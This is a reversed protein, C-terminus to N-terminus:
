QDMQKLLKIQGKYGELFLDISVKTADFGLCKVEYKIINKPKKRILQKYENICKTLM